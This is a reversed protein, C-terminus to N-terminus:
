AASDPSADATVAISDRAEPAAIFDFDDAQLRIDRGPDRTEITGSDLTLRADVGFLTVDIIGHASSLGVSIPMEFSPLPAGSIPPILGM